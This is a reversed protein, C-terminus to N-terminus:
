RGEIIRQMFVLDLWRNFKFGVEHFHAVSKFGLQEHFKISADNAADIAGIMVRLGATQAALILRQMLQRGIGTARLGAKVHVSHEVTLKYGAGSHRWEGYSAFGLVEDGEVAVFVPFGQSQHGELWSTRDALTVQDHAYVATTNIIVENYISLIGLLDAQTADRIIM